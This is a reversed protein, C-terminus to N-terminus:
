ALDARPVAGAMAAAREVVEIPQCGVVRVPRPRGEPPLPDGPKWGDPLVFWTPIGTVGWRAAEQRQAALLRPVEPDSLWALAADADMGSRVLLDRLVERDELDRGEEWHATMAAERWADLRGLRRAHESLALAPKTSPAHERPHLTVGMSRAVERLRDHMVVIRDPPFMSSLEIGGPPIGPHLEFGRWEFDLAYRELM